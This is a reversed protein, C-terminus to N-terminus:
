RQMAQPMQAMIGPYDLAQLAEVLRTAVRAEHFLPAVISYIPLDPDTLPPADPTPGRAVVAAIRVAVGASFVLWFFLAVLASFAAPALVSIAPALFAAVIAAAFQGATVGRRACLTADRRELAMAADTVVKAGRRRRVIAGMRQPSTIAYRVNTAGRKGLGLLLRIATGRPALVHTCNDANRALPAVGVAVARVADLDAALQLEGTYYPAGLHRALLRYFAEESLGGEALLTRDATEGCAAAAQAKLLPSLAIGHNM